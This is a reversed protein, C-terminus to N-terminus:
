GHVVYKLAQIPAQILSLRLCLSCYEVVQLRCACVGSLPMGASIWRVPVPSLLRGSQLATVHAKPPTAVNGLGTLAGGHAKPPTAVDGM